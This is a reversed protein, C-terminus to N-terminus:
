VIFYVKNQTTGVRTRTKKLEQMEQQLKSAKHQEELVDAPSIWRKRNQPLLADDEKFQLFVTNDNWWIRVQYQQCIKQDEAEAPEVKKLFIFFKFESLVLQKYAFWIFLKDSM